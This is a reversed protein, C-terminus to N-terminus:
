KPNEFGLTVLSVINKTEQVEVSDPEKSCIYTALIYDTGDTVFWVQIRPHKASRFVATGFSGFTCVGGDSEV